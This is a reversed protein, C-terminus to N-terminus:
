RNIERSPDRHDAAIQSRQSRILSTTCLIIQAIMANDIIYRPFYAPNIAAYFMGAVPILTLIYFTRRNAEGYFIFLSLIIACQIAIFLTEGYVSFHNERYVNYAVASLQTSAQM